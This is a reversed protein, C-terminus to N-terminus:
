RSLEYLAVALANSVNLSDVFTRSVVLSTPAPTVAAKNKGRGRAAMEEEEERNIRDADRALDIARGRETANAMSDLALEPRATRDHLAPDSQSADHVPLDVRLDFPSGAHPSGTIKALVHCSDAVVPRLGRGENGVVLLTHKRRPPQQSSSAGAAADTSSTDTAAAALKDALGRMDVSHDALSLGVVNWESRDLKHLLRPTSSVYFLNLFEQAGSSFCLCLILLLSVQTLMGVSAREQRRGRADRKWKESRSAKSTVGGIPASNKQCLIVGAVNFYLCSRMMAGLNQPDMIEDLLVWLHSLQAPPHPASPDSPAPASLADLAYQRELTQLHSSLDHASFIMPPNLPAADLAFGNHPRQESRAHLDHKSLYSSPIQLKAALAVIQAQAALDTPPPGSLRGSLRAAKNDQLYLHYFAPRRRAQLACLVPHVGYLLEGQLGTAPDPEARGEFRARGFKKPERTFSTAAHREWASAGRQGDARPPESSYRETWNNGDRQFSRSPPAASSGRHQSVSSWGENDRSRAGGSGRENWGGRDERRNTNRGGERKTPTFSVREAFGESDQKTAFDGGYSPASRRGEEGQGFRRDKGRPRPGREAPLPREWDSPQPIDWQQEEETLRPTPRPAEAAARESPPPFFPQTPPPTYVPVAAPVAQPAPVPTSAAAAGGAASGLNHRQAYRQRASHDKSENQERRSVARAEEADPAQSSQTPVSQPSTSFAASPAAAVSTGGPAFSDSRGQLQQQQMKWALQAPSSRSSTYKPKSMPVSAVSASPSAASAISPDRPENYPRYPKYGDENQTPRQYQKRSSQQPPQHQQPEPATWEEFQFSESSVPEAPLAWHDIAAPESQQQHQSASRTSHASHASATSESGRQENWRAADHAQQEDQRRRQERLFSADVTLTRPKRSSTSAAASASATASPPAATSQAAISQWLAHDRAAEFGGPQDPSEEAGDDNGDDADFDAPPADFHAHQDEGGGLEDFDVEAFEDDHAAAASACQKAFSGRRASRSSSASFSSRGGHQAASAFCRHVTHAAVAACPLAAAIVAAPFEARRM